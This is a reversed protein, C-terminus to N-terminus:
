GAAPPLFAPVGRARSCSAGRPPFSFHNQRCVDFAFFAPVSVRILKLSDRAAIRCWTAIAPGAGVDELSGAAHLAPIEFQQVSSIRLPLAPRPYLRYPGPSPSCMGIHFS